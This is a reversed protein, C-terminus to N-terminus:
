VVAEPPGSVAHATPAPGALSSRAGRGAARGAHPAATSACGGASERTPRAETWRDTGGGQVTARYVGTGANQATGCRPRPVRETTRPARRTSIHARARAAHWSPAVEATWFGAGPANAHQRAALRKMRRGACPQCSAFSGRSARAPEKRAGSLPLVCAEKGARPCVPPLTAQKSARQRGNARERRRVAGAM